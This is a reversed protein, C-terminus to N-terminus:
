PTSDESFTPRLSDAPNPLGGDRAADPGGALLDAITTRSYFGNLQTAIPKWRAHIACHPNEGCRGRGLLCRDDSPARFVSVIRTLTLEGPPVALRFGGHPGRSSALVGARTLQHMTKSLYNRPIRLTEALEPVRVAASGPSAAIHLVARLAYEATQPLSVM